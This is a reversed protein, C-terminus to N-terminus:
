TFLPGHSICSLFNGSFFISAPNICFFLASKYALYEDRFLRWSLDYLAVAAGTFLAVNVLVAALKLASHFHLLGYDVQLWYIVDGAVRVLFPYAPFFALTNEYTYGNNAIHLFYQGDWSTLGDTLWSVLSDCITYHEVKPTVSWAFVGANHNPVLADAIVALGWVLARSVLATTIVKKKIPDM